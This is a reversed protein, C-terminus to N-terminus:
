HIHILHSYGSYIVFVGILCILISSFYPITELLGGFPIFRKSIINIGLAAISGVLVLTTALGLSFAGVLVIGLSIKNLQLCVLFVTIAAPCPILGGSFGFFITQWVGTKESILSAEIDKAHSLAHKDVYSSNKVVSYDPQENESHHHSQHDHPHKTTKFQTWFISFAIGIILFGSFLIFWPELQEGILENGFM